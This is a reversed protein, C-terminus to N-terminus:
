DIVVRKLHAPIKVALEYTITDCATAMSHLSNPDKRDMSVVTVPLNMKLDCKGPVASVDVSAINMSVRGIIPCAVRADGIQVFGRNSLRRDLAEYYGVPITAVCLDKKAVFTNNYGISQGKLLMKLGTIVTKMELAPELNLEQLLKENQSLGYLGIGLRMVNAHIDEHFRSGDTNSAHIYRIGPFSAKFQKVAANWQVIQGDTFSEDDNDADGLHTCLGELKIHPNQELFGIAQVHEDAVIGQRRMGTDLKLHICVRSRVESISKLTELCTITFAVNKLNSEVITRPRTYGIILLPKTIGRARLAVAEFYSDVVFFPIHPEHALTRAVELLGHGYANSKLVPAIEGGPALKRFERLNGLIRSRSIYITILPEYPFRRRSLWYLLRRM